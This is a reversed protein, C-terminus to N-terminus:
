LAKIKHDVHKVAGMLKRGHPQSAVTMDELKSGHPQPNSYPFSERRLSSSRKLGVIDYIKRNMDM